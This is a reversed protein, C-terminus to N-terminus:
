SPLNNCIFLIDACRRPASGVARPPSLLSPSLSPPRRQILIDENMTRDSKSEHSIAVVKIKEGMGKAGLFKIM